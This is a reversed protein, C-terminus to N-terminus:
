YKVRRTLGHLLCLFWTCNSGMLLNQETISKSECHFLTSFVSITAGRNFTMVEGVLWLVNIKHHFHQTQTIPVMLAHLSFAVHLVRRYPVDNQSIILLFCLLSNAEATYVAFPKVLDAPM